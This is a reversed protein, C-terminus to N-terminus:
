IINEYEYKTPNEEIELLETNFSKMIKRYNEPIDYKEDETLTESFSNDIMFTLLEFKKDSTSIFETIETIDTDTLDNINESTLNKIKDIM